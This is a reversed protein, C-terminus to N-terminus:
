PPPGRAHSHTLESRSRSLQSDNDWKKKKTESTKDPCTGAQIQDRRPVGCTKNHTTHHARGKAINQSCFLSISFPASSVDMNCTTAAHHGEGRVRGPALVAGGDGADGVDGALIAFADDAAAEVSEHWGVVTTAAYGRVNVMMVMVIGGFSLHLSIGLRHWSPRVAELM